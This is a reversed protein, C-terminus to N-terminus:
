HTHTKSHSPNQLPTQSPRKKSKAYILEGNEKLPIIKDLFLSSLTHIWYTERNLALCRYANLNKKRVIPLYQSEVEFLTEVHDSTFSLPIFVINQRGENHTLINECTEDTYPKLWEGKGFKSQFCLKGLIEPFAKLIARFSKECEERYPDGTDIFTQPLGHASFLLFTDKDQLNKADLFERIRRQFAEIFLPHDPYSPIWRLKKQAEPSLHRSFFRAISGSTAYTFQPFLPLIKITPSKCEEIQKLSAEHTQPLYRHFSLVQSQLKQSLEFRLFETDFFIPSNGGISEYDHRIKLSRKRAIRTFLYNHIFPPFRTRVVDQDCLLERLFPFIEDKSRPGGFNVLLPTTMTTIKAQFFWVGLDM